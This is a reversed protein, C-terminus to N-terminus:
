RLLARALREEIQAARDGVNTLVILMLDDDIYYSVKSSFSAFSGGPGTVRHGLLKYSRLGLGYSVAAPSRPSPTMMQTVGAASIVRGEFLASFWSALDPVTSRIAGAAYVASMDIYPGNLFAGASDGRPVYGSVRAPVLDSAQDVQTHTLRAPPFVHRQLYDSFSSGSVKEIIFGLLVYNSNSYSFSTGPAFEYLSGQNAIFAVLGAPSTGVRTLTDAADAYDRIGSTHTLLQRVTVERGRPFGPLFKSLSDDLSLQNREALQIIAAATFAKTVSFIRFVSSGTLPTGLELNSYGYEKQFVLQGHRVVGVAVGPAEGSRVAAAALSDIKAFETRMLRPANSSRALGCGAVLLAVGSVAVIRKTPGPILPGM